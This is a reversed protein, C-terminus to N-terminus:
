PDTYRIRSYFSTLYPAFDTAGNDENAYAVFWLANTQVDTHAAGSGTFMEIYNPLKIFKVITYNQTDILPGVPVTFDRLIKFRRSTGLNNPLLTPAANSTTPTVLVEGSGPISGNAQRDLFLICRVPISHTQQAGALLNFRLLVSKMCVKLGLRQFGGTGQAMLSIPLLNGTLASAPNYTWVRELATSVDTNFDHYKLEPKLDRRLNGYGVAMSSYGARRFSRFANSRTTMRPIYPRQWRRRFIKTNYYRRNYPMVTGIGPHRVLSTNQYSSSSSPEDVIIPTSNEFIRQRKRPPEIQQISQNDPTWSDALFDALSTKYTGKGFGSYASLVSRATDYAAPAVQRIANGIFQRVAPNQTAARIVQEM